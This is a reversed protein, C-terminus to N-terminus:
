RFEITNRCNQESFDQLITDFIESCITQFFSESIKKSLLDAYIGLFKLVTEENLGGAYALEDLYVSACHYKISEFISNSEGIISEQFMKICQDVNTSNWNKCALHAFITRILQRVFMLFKDMRWRDILPWEKSLSTLMAQIFEISETDSSFSDILGCINTVLEEQLLMKDQMWLVYHLGKCLRELSKQNFEQKISQNHIYEQLLKLSRQRIKPEGSALRQAFVLEAAEINDLTGDM